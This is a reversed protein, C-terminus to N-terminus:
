IATPQPPSYEGHSRLWQQFKDTELPRLDTWGLPWGMLWEVWEPNLSGGTLEKKEQDSMKSRAHSGGDLGCRGGSQSVSVVTPMRKFARGLENGSPGNSKGDKSMGHLTPLRSSGSGSASTIWARLGVLGSPTPLPYFAGARTMGWRPWTALFSELGGLLSFQRTKWSRTNPDYKALSERLSAGSGAASEPSEQAGEQPALIRVPFGALFLTLLAAGHYETSLGSTTGSQSHSLADTTKDPASCVGATNTSRSPVSPKGDSCNAASFAAELARSFHWSM